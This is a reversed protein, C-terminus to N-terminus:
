IMLEKITKTLQHIKASYKQNEDEIDILLEEDEAKQAEFQTM